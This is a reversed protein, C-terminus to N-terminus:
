SGLASWYVKKGRYRRDDSGICIAPLIAKSFLSACSLFSLFVVASPSPPAGAKLMSSRRGSVRPFLTISRPSPFSM